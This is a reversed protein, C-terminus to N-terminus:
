IKHLATKIQINLMELVKGIYIGLRVHKLAHLVHPYVYSPQGLTVLAWSQKILRIM